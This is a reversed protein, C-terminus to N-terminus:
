QWEIKELEREVQSNALRIYIKTMDLTSHNLLRQLVPMQVRPAMQTAFTRRSVHFSLQKDIGALGALEKLCRNTYQNTLKFLPFAQLDKRNDLRQEALRDRIIQEPKSWQIGDRKFLLWLPITHKNRTKEIRMTIQMGKATEEIHKRALKVVDGFRLGTYCAFLFMNRIKELYKFGTPIELQELLHLEAETLYERHPEEQRPKFKRYPNGDLPLYDHKIALNIYTRLCKHHRHATNMGMAHSRLFKNFSSLFSYKLDSFLVTEQFRKLYRLTVRHQRKTSEQLEPREIEREFFATFTLYPDLDPADVAPCDDLLRLPAAGFRQLLEQERKKYGKIQEHILDNLHLEAPHTEMVRRHTADWYRPEIYIGTSLIRVRQEAPAYARIQILAEGDQNLINNRNYVVSFKIKKFHTAM